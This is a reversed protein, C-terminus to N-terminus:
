LKAQIFAQGSRDPGKGVRACAVKADILPQLKHSAIISTSYVAPKCANSAKM